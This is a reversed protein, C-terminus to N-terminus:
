YRSRSSFRYYLSHYRITSYPPRASRVDETCRNPDQLVPLKPMATTRISLAALPSTRTGQTRCLPPFAQQLQSLATQMAFTTPLAYNPSLIFNGSHQYREYWSMFTEPYQTAMQAFQEASIALTIVEITDGKHFFDKGTCEERGFFINHTGAKATSISKDVEIQIGKHTQTVFYLRLSPIDMSGEFTVEQKVQAQWRYYTHHGLAQQELQFHAIQESVGEYYTLIEEENTVLPLTVENIM